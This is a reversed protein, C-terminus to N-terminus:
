FVSVVRTWELYPCNTNGSVELRVLHGFVDCARYNAIYRRGEPRCTLRPEDLGASRFTLPGKNEYVNESQERRFRNEAVGIRAPASGQQTPDAIDRLSLHPCAACDSRVAGEACRLREFAVDAGAWSKKASEKTKMSMRAKNGEFVQEWGRWDPGACVGQQTPDAIDRLSLDAFTACNSRVAGEACRLREFAVDAGAV